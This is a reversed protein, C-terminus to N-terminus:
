AENSTPTVDCLKSQYVGRFQKNLIHIIKTKMDYTNGPEPITSLTSEPLLIGREILEERNARVSIKRELALFEVILKIHAILM